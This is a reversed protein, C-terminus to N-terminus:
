DYFKDCSGSILFQNIYNCFIQMFNIFSTNHETMLVLLFIFFFQFQSIIPTCDSILVLELYVVTSVDYEETWKARRSRELWSQKKSIGGGKIKSDMTTSARTLIQLKLEPHGSHDPHEAAYHKGFPKDKFSDATPNDPSRGHEFFRDGLM